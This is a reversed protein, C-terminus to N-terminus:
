QYIEYKVAINKIKTTGEIQLVPRDSQIDINDRILQVRAQKWKESDDNKISAVTGFLNKPEKRTDSKVLFFEYGEDYYEFMLYGTYHNHKLKEKLEVPLDIITKEQKGQQTSSIQLAPDQWTLEITESKLDSQVKQL